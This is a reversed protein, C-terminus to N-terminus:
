KAGGGGRDDLRARARSVLDDVGDATAVHVDVLAGSGDFVYLQPYADGAAETSGSLRARLRGGPDLVAPLGVRARGLFEAVAQPSERYEPVEITIAVLRDDGDLARDLSRLARRSSPEYLSWFLLVVGDPHGPLLDDLTVREGDLAVLPEDVLDPLAVAGADGALLGAAAIWLLLGRLRDVAPRRAPRMTTSTAIM